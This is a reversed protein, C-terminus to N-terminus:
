RLRRLLAAAAPLRVLPEDDALAAVLLPEADPWTAVVSLAARRTAVDAGARTVLARLLTRAAPEDRRALEEAAELARPGDLAGRLATLCPAPPDPARRTDREDRAHLAARAASLRVGPDPDRCLPTALAAGDAGLEGAANMAAVRVEPRPDAVARAVTELAPRPHGLRPLQVAARLALYRDSSAALAILREPAGRDLRALAGIAALRVGLQPDDLAAHVLERHRRAGLQGLAAVAAARVSPADDRALAAALEEAAGDGRRALAAIATARVAPEPDRAATRLAAAADPLVGDFDLAALRVSPDTSGLAAALIPRAEPTEAALVGAARVRLEADPSVLLPPLARAVALNNVVGALRVAELRAERSLSPAEPGSLAAWLTTEALLRLRRPDRAGEREAAKRYATAAARAQGRELLPDVDRRLAAEGVPGACGALSHSGFAFLAAVMVVRM